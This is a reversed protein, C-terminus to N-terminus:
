GKVLEIMRRANEFAHGKSDNDFYLNAESINKNRSILDRVKILEADSYNSTYLKPVGHFRHYLVSTNMIINEPLNPYSIGSFTIEKEALAHFFDTNWWSSHRFELVNRFRPSLAAVIQAAKEESYRVNPPLQFLICGLKKKLGTRVSSYFDKLLSKCDVFKKYHTILRPAKVSFIFDDPSRRHWAKLVEPKPFHYFTTNLELTKFTRCYHEFWLKKALKEPYFKGRWHNYYFGSCGINWKIHEHPKTM